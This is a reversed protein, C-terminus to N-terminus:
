AAKTSSGENPIKGSRNASAVMDRVVGFHRMLLTTQILAQVNFATLAPLSGMPIRLQRAMASNQAHSSPKLMWGEGDRFRAPIIMEVESEPTLEELYWESFQKELTLVSRWRPLLVHLVMRNGHDYTEAIHLFPMAQHHLYWRIIADETHPFAVSLANVQDRYNERNRLM